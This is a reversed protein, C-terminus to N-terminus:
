AHEALATPNAPDAVAYTALKVTVSVALAATGCPVAVEVEFKSTWGSIVTVAGVTGL